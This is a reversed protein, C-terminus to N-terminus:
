VLLRVHQLAIHFGPASDAVPMEPRILGATESDAIGFQQALREKWTLPLEDSKGRRFLPMAETSAPLADSSRHEPTRQGAADVRSARSGDAALKKTPGDFAVEGVVILLISVFVLAHALRRFM